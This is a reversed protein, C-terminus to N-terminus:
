GGRVSSWLTSSSAGHEDTLQADTSAATTRSHCAAQHDGGRCGRCRRGLRRGMRLLEDGTAWGRRGQAGAVVDAGRLLVPWDTENSHCDYCSTRAIAEAEPNPWPAEATVPPNSKTWGYPVLQMLLFLALLGGGGILVVKRIKQRRTM